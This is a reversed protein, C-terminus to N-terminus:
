TGPLDDPLAPLPISAPQQRAQQLWLELVPDQSGLHLYDAVLDWFRAIGYRRVRPLIGSPQMTQSHSTSFGYKRASEMAGLAALCVVAWSTDSIHGAGHAPKEVLWINRCQLSQGNGGDAWLKSAISATIGAAVGCDWYHHRRTSGAANCSCCQEVKGMRAATPFGDHALLWLPLKRSNEWRVNQWVRKLTRLFTNQVIAHVDQSQHVDVALAEAVFSAFKDYRRERIGRLQM